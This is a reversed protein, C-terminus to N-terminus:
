RQRFQPLVLFPLAALVLSVCAFAFSLDYRGGSIDYLFGALWAGLAGGFGGFATIMGFTTAGSRGGFHRTTLTAVLPGRTGQSIGFLAIFVTLAASRPSAALAELLGISTLTIAFSTLGTVRFGVRGALWGAGIMGCVSLAGIVGSASAAEIPALGISILYAVIQIMMMYMAISTFLFVM